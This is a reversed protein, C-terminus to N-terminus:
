FTSTKEFWKRFLQTVASDPYVKIPDFVVSLANRVDNCKSLQLIVSGVDIKIVLVFM